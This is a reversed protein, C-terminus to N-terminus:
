ESLERLVANQQREGMTVNVSSDTKCSVFGMALVQSLEGHLRKCRERVVLVLFFCLWPFNGFSSVLSGYAGWIKGLNSRPRGSFPCSYNKQLSPRCYRLLDITNSPRGKRREKNILIAVNQSSITQCGERTGDVVHSYSNCGDFNSNLRIGASYCRQVLPSLPIMPENEPM